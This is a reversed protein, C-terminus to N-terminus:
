EADACECRRCRPRTLVLLRDVDNVPVTTEIEYTCSERLLPEIEELDALIRRMEGPNQGYSNGLRSSIREAMVQRPASLLVIAGFRHYLDAQEEACGSVFLRNSGPEAMARELREVNWHQHGDADMFSWGPEDMDICTFGRHRLEEVVATKGVGSMGTILVHNATM